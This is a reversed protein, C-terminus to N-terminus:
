LHLFLYDIGTSKERSLYKRQNKDLCITPLSTNIKDDQEMRVLLTNLSDGEKIQKGLEIVQLYDLGFHAAIAWLIKETGSRQNLIRNVQAQSIGIATALDAESIGRDRMLMRVGISFFKRATKYIM